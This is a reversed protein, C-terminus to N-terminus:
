AAERLTSKKHEKLDEMNLYRHAELWNEHTEVALARVLRCCSAANPFIRVVYTRRRIEENLRELMNTSKLHKHHQRPLRYFTLTEEITEEAWAVLRPYRAEWKAIWAVLDRRAEEVSRRDYLWRLEQLCDDDAKRPLHDLANRLFHVYCRQYAAESLVERIAARLGAHDDAVVLEVGLLGRERLGLLFTRWSSQSERNAMEVGLIQRRGDWDIGVAILVAQSAVIGGERVKEYRADLILYPFPEELRRSAFQALSDDLRKNISSIASASFSHGCLEETIAKVKRPSVGQVYMEALTAVLAQESRQYREFLETSFRGDRDQPVRLELKGVRTVLTRTYYGSRYGLRASTREGKEAQLADTMEAELMEQMVARVIERLGDPSQSLLDKIAAAAPKDKATTMTPSRESHTVNFMVM